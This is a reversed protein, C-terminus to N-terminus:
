VHFYIDYSFNHIFSPFYIFYYYDFNTFFLLIISPSFILLFLGYSITNFLKNQKSTKSLLMSYLLARKLAVKNINNKYKEKWKQFHDNTLSVKM